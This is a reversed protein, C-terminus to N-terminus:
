KISEKDLAAQDNRMRLLDDLFRGQGRVGPVAVCLLSLALGPSWHHM